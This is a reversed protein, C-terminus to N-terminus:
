LSAQGNWPQVRFSGIGEQRGRGDNSAEHFASSLLLHRDAVLRDPIPQNVIEDLPVPFRESGLLSNRVHSPPVDDVQSLTAMIRLSVRMVDSLQRGQQKIPRLGQMPQALNLALPGFVRCNQVVDPVENVGPLMVFM